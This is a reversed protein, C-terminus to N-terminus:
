PLHLDQSSWMQSRYILVDTESAPMQPLSLYYCGVFYQTTCIIIGLIGAEPLLTRMHVYLTSKAVVRQSKHLFVFAVFHEIPNIWIHFISTIAWSAIAKAWEQKFWCKTLENKNHYTYILWIIQWQIYTIGQTKDTSHNQITIDYLHSSM